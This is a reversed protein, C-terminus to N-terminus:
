WPSLQLPPAKTHSSQTAPTHFSLTAPHPQKDPPAQGTWCSSRVLSVRVCVCTRNHIPHIDLAYCSSRTASLPGAPHNVSSASCCSAQPVQAVHPRTAVSGIQFGPQEWQGHEGRGRASTILLCGPETDLAALTPDAFSAPMLAAHGHQIGM